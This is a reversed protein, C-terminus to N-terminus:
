LLDTFVDCLLFILCWLIASVASGFIVGRALSPRFGDDFVAPRSRADRWENDVWSRQPSVPSPSPFSM